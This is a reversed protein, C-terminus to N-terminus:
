QRGVFGYGARKGGRRSADIDVEDLGRPVAFSRGCSTSYTDIAIGDQTFPVASEHPSFAQVDNKLVRSINASLEKYKVEFSPKRYEHRTSIIVSTARYAKPTANSTVVSILQEHQTIFWAM